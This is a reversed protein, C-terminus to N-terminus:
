FLSVMHDVLVVRPSMGLFIILRIQFSVHAEINMATSNITALVHFCGLQGDVSSQIFIHHGNEVCEHIM